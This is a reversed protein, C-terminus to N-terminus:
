KQDVKQEDKAVPHAVPQAARAVELLAHRYYKLADNFGKAYAEATEKTYVWGTIGINVLHVAAVPGTGSALVVRALRHARLAKGINVPEQLPIGDTLAQMLMSPEAAKGAPQAARLAELAAPIGDYGLAMADGTLDRYLKAEDATPDPIPNVPIEQEGHGGQARGRSALETCVARIVAADYRLYDVDGNDGAFDTPRVRFCIEAFEEDTMDAVASLISVAPAQQATTLTPAAVEVRKLKGLAWHARDSSNSEAMFDIADFASRMTCLPEGHAAPQQVTGAEIAQLREAKERDCKLALALKKKLLAIEEDRARRDAAIAAQVYQRIETRVEHGTRVELWAEFDDGWPEPLQKDGVAPVAASRSDGGLPTEDMM